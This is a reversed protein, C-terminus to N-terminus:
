TRATIAPRSCARRWPRTGGNPAAIAILCRTERRVLSAYFDDQDSVDVIVAQPRHRFVVVFRRTSGDRLREM